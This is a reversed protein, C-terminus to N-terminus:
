FNFIGIPYQWVTILYTFYIFYVYILIHLDWISVVSQSFTLYLYLILSLPYNQSQYTHIYQIFGNLLSFVYCVTSQAHTHTDTQRDSIDSLLPDHYVRPLFILFHLLNCPNVIDTTFIEKKKWINKSCIHGLINVDTFDLLPYYCHQAEDSGQSGPLCCHKFFDGGSVRKHVLFCSLEFLGQDGHLSSLVWLSHGLKGEVHGSESGGFEWEGGWFHNVSGRTGM